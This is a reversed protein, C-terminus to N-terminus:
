EQGRNGLVSAVEADRACLYGVGTYLCAGYKSRGPDLLGGRSL